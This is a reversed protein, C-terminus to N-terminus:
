PGLLDGYLAGTVITVIAATLFIAALSAVIMAFVLWNSRRAGGARKHRSFAPGQLSRAISSMGSAVGINLV